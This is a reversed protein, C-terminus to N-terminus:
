ISFRDIGRNGSSTEWFGFSVELVCSVGRGYLERALDRETRGVRDLHIRLWKRGMAAHPIMSTKTNSGLEEPARDATGPISVQAAQQKKQQLFALKAAKKLASKSPPKEEIVRSTQDSLTQNSETEIELEQVAREVQLVKEELRKTEKNGEDNEGEERHEEDVEPKWIETGLSHKSAVM